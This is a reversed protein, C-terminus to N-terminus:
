LRRRFLSAEAATLGKPARELLELLTRASKKRFWGLPIWSPLSARYISLRSEVGRLDFRVDTDLSRLNALDRYYVKEWRRGRDLVVSFGEPGFSLTGISPELLAGAPGFAIKMRLTLYPAFSPTSTSEVETRRSQSDSPQAGSTANAPQERAPAQCNPCIVSGDTKTQLGEPIYSRCTPCRM